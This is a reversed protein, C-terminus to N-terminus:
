AILETIYPYLSFFNHIITQRNYVIKSKPTILLMKPTSSYQLIFFFLFQKLQNFFSLIKLFVQQCFIHQMIIYLEVASFPPLFKFRLFSKFFISFFLFLQQCVSFLMILYCENRFRRSSIKFFIQFFYFFNNVFLFCCSLIDSNSTFCLVVVFCVRFHNYSGQCIFLLAVRFIGVPYM